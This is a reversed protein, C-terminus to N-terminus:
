GFRAAKLGRVGPDCAFLHGSLPEAALDDPSMGYRATTIFLTQLDRGGFAVSTPLGVPMELVRDVSGDPAFRVVCHGGWRANWLYGEADM